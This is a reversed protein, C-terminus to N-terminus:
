ASIGDKIRSRLFGALIVEGCCGRWHLRGSIQSHFLSDQETWPSDSHMEEHWHQLFRSTAWSWSHDNQKESALLATKSNRLHNSFLSSNWLCNSSYHWSGWHTWRKKLCANSWRREYWLFLQFLWALCAPVMWGSGERLHSHCSHSRRVSRDCLPPFKAFCHCLSHSCSGLGAVGM